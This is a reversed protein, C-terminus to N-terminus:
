FTEAEGSNRDGMPARRENQRREERRRNLSCTDLAANCPALRKCLSAVSYFVMLYVGRLAIRILESEAMLTRWMGTFLWYAEFLFSAASVFAIAAVIRMFLDRALPCLPQSEGIVHHMYLAHGFVVATLGLLLFNFIAM